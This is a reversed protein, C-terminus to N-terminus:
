LIPKTVRAGARVSKQCGVTDPKAPYSYRKRLHIGVLKDVRLQRRSTKMSVAKEHVAAQQFNQEDQWCSRDCGNVEAGVQDSVSLGMVRARRPLDRMEKTHESGAEISLRPGRAGTRLLWMSNNGQVSNRHPRLTPVQLVAKTSM